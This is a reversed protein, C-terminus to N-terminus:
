PLVYTETPMWLKRKGRAGRKGWSIVVATNGTELWLALIPNGQMKKVRTSANAASTTQVGLIGKEGGKLAVIDFLHFLDHRNKSFPNFREVIECEYGRERLLALTRQTPSM